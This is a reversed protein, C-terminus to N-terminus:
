YVLEERVTAPREVDNHKLLPSLAAKIKRCMKCMSKNPCMIYRM